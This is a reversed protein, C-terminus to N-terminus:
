GAGWWSRCPVDTQREAAITRVLPTVTAPPVGLARAIEKPSRGQTRLTRVRAALEEQDM